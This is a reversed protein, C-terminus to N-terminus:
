MRLLLQFAKAIDLDIIEIGNNGTAVFLLEQNPIITSSVGWGWTDVVHKVIPTSPNAIDVLLLGGGADGVYATKEDVSLEVRMTQNPTDFTGLLSVNSLDSINYISLGGSFAPTNYYDDNSPGDAVYITQQDASVTVDCAWGETVFSGALTPNSLDTVNIVQIGNSGNAIFAFSEDPSLKLGQAPGDIDYNRIFPQVSRGM